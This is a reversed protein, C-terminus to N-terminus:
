IAPTMRELPACFFAPNEAMNLRNLAAMDTVSLQPYGALLPLIATGSLGRLVHQVTVTRLVNKM